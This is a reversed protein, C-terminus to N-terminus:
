GAPNVTAGLAGTGDPAIFRWVVVADGTLPQFAVRSGTLGLSGPPTLREPRSFPADARRVSAYSATMSYTETASWSVALSRNPGAAADDVAAGLIKGSLVTRARPGNTTIQALKVAPAGRVTGTWAVFIHKASDIVPVATTGVLFPGATVTSRELRFSRWQSRGRIAVGAAIDLPKEEPSVVASYWALVIRGGPTIAARVTMDGAPRVKAARTAPGWRGGPQRVRAYVGDRGWWAAVRTGADNIAVAGLGGPKLLRPRSFGHHPSRSTVYTQYTRDDEYAAVAGGSRNAASIPFDVHQAIPHLAGFIGDSRGLAYVLRIRTDGYQTTSTVQGSVLLAQARGYAHIQAQDWGLGALDPARRWAGASDRVDVATFKRNGARDFGEWSVVGRGRADFDLGLLGLAGNSPVPERLWQAPASAPAVGAIAALVVGVVCLRRVISRAHRM